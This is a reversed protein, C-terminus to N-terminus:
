SCAELISLTCESTGLTSGLEFGLNVPLSIGLAIRESSGLQSGLSEGLPVPLGVQDGLKIFKYM